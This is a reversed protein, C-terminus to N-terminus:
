IFDILEINNADFNLSKVISDIEYADFSMKIENKTKFFLNVQEMFIDKITARELEIEFLYRVIEIINNKNLELNEIINSDNSNKIDTIDSESFGFDKLYEM